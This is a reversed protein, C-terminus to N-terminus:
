DLSASFAHSGCACSSDGVGMLLGLFNVGREQRLKMSAESEIRRVVWACMYWSTTVRANSSPSSCSRSSSASLSNGPGTCCSKLLPGKASMRSGGQNCVRVLAREQEIRGEEERETRREVRGRCGGTGVASRGEGEGPEVGVAVARVVLELKDEGGVSGDRFRLSAVKFLQAPPAHPFPFLVAFPRGVRAFGLTSVGGERVLEFDLVHAAGMALGRSQVDALGLSRKVYVLEAEREKWEARGSRATRSRRPRRSELELRSRRPLTKM